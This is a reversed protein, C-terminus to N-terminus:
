HGLSSFGERYVYLTTILMSYWMSSIEGQFSDFLNFMLLWAVYTGIWLSLIPTMIVGTLGATPLAYVISKYYIAEYGTPPTYKYTSTGWTFENTAATSM